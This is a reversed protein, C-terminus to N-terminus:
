VLVFHANTYELKKGECRQAADPDVLLVKRDNHKFVRDGERETDLNMSGQGSENLKLRVCKDEPAMERKLISELAEGANPTIAEM